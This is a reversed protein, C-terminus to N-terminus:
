EAPVCSYSQRWDKLIPSQNSESNPVFRVTIKLYEQSKLMKEQLLPEVVNGTWITVPAGTATGVKVVSDSTVANPAVPLTSFQSPDAQTEAFFEIKSDTAPTVTQWDFFRWVVKSGSKCDSRYIREYNQALVTAVAPAKACAASACVLGSCCDATTGCSKTAVVCQGAPPLAQCHRTPPSALPTDLRCAATKPTASGGCCDEDVDCTAAATLGAPHCADLAWVGRENIYGSAASSSFNQSPLWFAPHSRDTSASPSDDIAALWLQSQIDATNTMAQYSATAYSTTDSFDQQTDPLNLTNGYPRTSSFVVWRYGGAAVPLMTPQYSKNADKAREGRNLKTLLAPTPTAAQTDISWLRGPDEYYNTPGMYGYKRRDNRCCDDGPVTSQFIVSRSDSEFAPWKLADGLPWTSTVLRRNQFRKRSQDFDLTSLGKRWGAGGASDGDIFVLKTGDPSFSPVMMTTGALGWNGASEGTVDEATPASSTPLRWVWYSTGNGNDGGDTLYGTTRSYGSNPTFSGPPITVWGPSGTCPTKWELRASADNSTEHWDFKFDHTGANFSAAGRLPGNDWRGMVRTDDIWLRGGDDINGNSRFEYVGDCALIIHGTWRASFTDGDTITSYNPRGSRWDFDINPDIRQFARPNRQNAPLDANFRDLDYYTATLGSGVAPVDYPYLNTTPVVETVSSYKYELILRADSTGAQHVIHLRHKEGFIWNQAATCANTDATATNILPSASGDLYLQVGADADTCLQIAGTFPAEVFADWTSTWNDSALGIAPRYTTWNSAIDPEIRSISSSADAYVVNAGHMPEAAPPYLQSQPVLARPTSPSSWYLQVNSNGATSIQDLEFPTLAGALMPVNEVLTGPGSGSVSATGVTLSFHDTSTSVVEFTYTESFFAQVRGLRKVSFTTGILGGPSGALDYNPQPEIRKWSAGTYDTSPYYQALLGTGSGGSLMASGTDVRRTNPDIGVLQEKTNGWFNNAVLAYTGDPTLPAWAFGRWDDSDGTYNARSPGGVFDAIPSLSGNGNVTSVGGLTPSFTIPLNLNNSYYGVRSSNAFVKGNASITHCVPCGDSTGFAPQAADESGPDLVMENQAGNRHYETYYIKGRVPASSFRVTRTMPLLAQGGVVRQVSLQAAQGKATQEFYRWAEPPISAAPPTSEPLIQSWEFLADGVAPYRLGIKVASAPSLKADWQIKPARIGIPFVTEDYPYLVVGPDPVTSPAALIAASGPPAASDDSADVKVNLIGSASLTGLFATVTIPGAVASVMGVSGTADITAIDLRDLTWAPKPMGPLCGPPSLEIAFQATGDIQLGQAPGQQFLASAPITQQPSSATQWRLAASAFGVNEFYEVRLDHSSGATWNSPPACLDSVPHNQWDDLVLKGDLWVRVGDDTATCISYAESTPAVIAGTWRVAFREAGVGGFQPDHDEWDFDVNADIRKATPTGTIISDTAVFDDFYEGLLGHAGTGTSTLGTLTLDQPTPKVVMSTCLGSGNVTNPIVQLGGDSTLAGGDPLSLDSPSDIVLRCYPDCPNDPCTAGTGLAQTRRQGAPLHLTAIGDGVCAGWKGDDCTRRGMSCSVYDGSIREVQGCDIIQDQKKCECGENPADCGGVMPPPKGPGGDGAGLRQAHDSTSCGLLPLCFLLSAAWGIELQSGPPRKAVRLAGKLRQMRARGANKM